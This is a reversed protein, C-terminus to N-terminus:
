SCIAPLSSVLVANWGVALFQTLGFGGLAAREYRTPLAGAMLALIGLAVSKLAVLGFPGFTVVVYAALPNQETLCYQRGVVTLLIDAVALVLIISWAIRSVTAATWLRPWDGVRTNAM